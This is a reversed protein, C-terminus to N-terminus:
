IDKAKLVKIDVSKFLETNVKGIFFQLLNINSIDKFSFGLDELIFPQQFIDFANLECIVLFHYGQQILVSLGFSHVLVQVDSTVGFAIVKAEVLSDEKSFM